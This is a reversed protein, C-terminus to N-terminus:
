HGRKKVVMQISIGGESRCAWLDHSRHKLCLRLHQKSLELLVQVGHLSDPTAQEVKRECGRLPRGGLPM